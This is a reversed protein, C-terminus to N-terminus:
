VRLQAQFVLDNYTTPSNIKLIINGSASIVCGGVVETGDLKMLPIVLNQSAIIDTKQPFETAIIYEGVPFQGGPEKELFCSVILSNGNRQVTSLQGAGLSNEVGVSSELALPIAYDHLALAQEKSNCSLGMSKAILEFLWKNGFVNPHSGDVWMNLVNILYDADALEGNPKNLLKPLNIYKGKTESTLRILEMRLWNDEPATWCFDPVFVAVNNENAYQIFWNIRQKVNNINVASNNGFDNHGLAMILTHSEECILKIAYESVDALKRGSRSFNNCTTEIQSSVYSIGAFDVNDVSKSVIKIKCSGYRNDLMVVEKNYFGAAVNTDVTDVVTDNVLIDFQGGNSQGLYHIYCRRMFTPLTFQIANNAAASRHGIGALLYDNEYDYIAQWTGTFSVSHIDISTNQGSGLSLYPTFGYSASGYEGNLARALLRAWGNSFLNPAFAGAGISDSLISTSKAGNFMGSKKFEPSNKLSIQSADFQSQIEKNRQTLMSIKEALGDISRLDEVTNENTIAAIKLVYHQKGEGDIYDSLESNSVSFSHQPKWTSSADGDFYADVYVFKPYSNLTLIHDNVQEIRLGNVYGAGSLVDFTNTTARPVVKFGDDIFWNKGNMDKALQRTLEDMGALRATFDLQWTEPAVNIGTLDAIGSYEIGFNRNLTNGAEGPTTITKTTSPIHNIAVLTDNVSSYLGVWNFDFPGTVSDLVTSYVVVNDNIRGVQQVIQQHVISGTPIGEARDIPDAANQGVVNAFIFTDIDLQENNQAKVAFLQEGALTIVSAM